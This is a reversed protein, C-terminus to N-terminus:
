RLAALRDACELAREPYAAEVSHIYFHCAGPNNPALRVATSLAALIEETGENPVRADYEGSWYNWPNLNMMSSGYLTLVDTDQPYREALAAMGSAYARDLPGRPAEPDDAYRLALAQILAREVAPGEM